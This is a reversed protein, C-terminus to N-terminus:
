SSRTVPAPAPAPAAAPAPAPVSVPVAPPPSASAVSGGLATSSGSPAPAPKVHTVVVKEEIRRLRVRQAPPEDGATAALVPDNGDRMQKALGGLLALFAAGSVAAVALATRPRRPPAGSRETTRQRM